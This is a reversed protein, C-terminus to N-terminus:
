IHEGSAVRWEFEFEFMIGGEWELTLQILVLILGGEWEVRGRV